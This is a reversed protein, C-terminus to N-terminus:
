TTPPAPRTTSPRRERGWKNIEVKPLSLLRSHRHDGRPQPRQPSSTLAARRAGSQGFGPRSGWAGGTDGGHGGARQEVEVGTVAPDERLGRQTGGGQSRRSGETGGGWIRGIGEPGRPQAILPQRPGTSETDRKGEGPHTGTPGLLEWNTGTAGLQDGNGRGQEWHGGGWDKGMARHRAPEGGQNGIGGLGKLAEDAGRQRIGTEGWHKGTGSGHSETGDRHM